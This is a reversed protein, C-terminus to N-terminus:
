QCPKAVLPNESSPSGFAFTVLDSLEVARSLTRDNNTPAESFSVKVAAVSKASTGLTEATKLPILTLASTPTESGGATAATNYKYYQFIPVEKSEASQAYVNSALRVGTAPTAAAEFTFNPWTSASNANFTKDVLTGAAPYTGGWVIDHEYAEGSGPVTKEGYGTVFRLESPTSLAQVPTFERALCASHLEDVVSTMATRGLQTAQVTDAIRASQRFSFELLALAAGAIILALVSAVLVEILTVGDERSALRRPTAYMVSM